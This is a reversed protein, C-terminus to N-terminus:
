MELVRVITDAHREGLSGGFFSGDEAYCAIPRGAVTAMAGVVGDGPVARGGLRGSVVRSRLVDISGPDCLAELRELPALRELAPEPPAISVVRDHMTRTARGTNASVGMSLKNVGGPTM